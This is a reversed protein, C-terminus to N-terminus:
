FVLSNQQFHSVKRLDLFLLSIGYQAFLWKQIAIALVETLPRPTDLSLGFSSTHKRCYGWLFVVDQGKLAEFQALQGRVLDTGLPIEALVGQFDLEGIEFRRIM